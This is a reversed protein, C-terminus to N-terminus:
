IIKLLKQITKRSPKFNNNRIANKIRYLQNKSIGVSLADKLKIKLIKKLNLNLDEFIQYSDDDLGLIESEELSNSEKGIVVVKDVKISKRQLVGYNGNFKSEPHNLYDWFIQKLEKWFEEGSHIKGTNYDIFEDYVAESPKNRYPCVPKVSDNGFGVLCFNYPKIKKSFSKRHNIKKFRSILLPTSVTLQSIAFYQSYKEEIEDITKNKYHYDLIDEWFEKEWDGNPYPNKIHGLGHSSHKRIIIKGNIINYLVYRKSSIGYFWLDSEEGNIFNEDELKFLAKDFSYPNLKQFYSQIINTMDSPIAMSDTDCFAYMKDEKVLISEVIALILRSASTILTALIPNFWEGHTETKSISTSFEELGYIKVKSKRHETNIQAYIGYSTSNAIIKLIHERSDKKDKLEQRKEIIKKFIDNYPNIKEDLITIEKLNQNEKPSFRIAKIIEPSKGTLIKSALVDSLAYWLTGNYSISNIGINYAHKNGYRARVPLIDSDAKIGVIIALEKWIKPDKLDDLSTKHVFERTWETCDQEDIQNAIVFSWLNQLICVSPYMSLFDLYKIKTPTKRIRVETRGGYFTTMLYGLTQKSINSTLSFPSIRMEELLSKGISAPSFIKTIPKSLNYKKYEKVLKLYLQYTSKVDQINYKIYQKTIKGHQVNSLKKIKSKFFICASELSHKQNSLSFSLTRLDLFNGRLQFTSHRTTGFRIFSKTSDLSKILLRPYEKNETLKLSFSGNNSKRGYGFNVALRSLDFPLNFGVCLTQRSYIEPLFVKDVFERIPIIKCQFKELVLFEKSTIFNIDYFIARDVLIGDDYIEYYGIKLNQYQDTTTETDFVFVRSSYPIDVHSTKEYSWSDTVVYGRVAIESVM